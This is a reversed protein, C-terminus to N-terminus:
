SRTAIGSSLRLVGENLQLVLSLIENEEPAGKLRWGETEITYGRPLGFWGNWGTRKCAKDVTVEHMRSGVLIPVKAPPVAFKKTSQYRPTNEDQYYVSVKCFHPDSDAVTPAALTLVAATCAFISGFRM